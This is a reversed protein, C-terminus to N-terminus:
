RTDSLFQKTFIQLLRFRTNKTGCLPLFLAERRTKGVEPVRFHLENPNELCNRGSAWKGLLTRRPNETFLPLSAVKDPSPGPIYSRLPFSEFRRPSVGVGWSPWRRFVVLVKPSPGWNRNSRAGSRGKSGKGDKLDSRAQHRNKEPHHRHRPHQGAGRLAKRVRLHNRGQPPMKLAQLVPRHWWCM